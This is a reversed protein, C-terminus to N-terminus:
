FHYAKRGSSTAFYAGNEIDMARAHNAREQVGYAEVPEPELEWAAGEAGLEGSVLTASGLARASKEDLGGRDVNSHEVSSPQIGVPQVDAPIYVIQIGVRPKDQSNPESGHVNFAHHLSFEGPELLADEVRGDIGLARLDVHQGRALMNGAAYTEIHPLQGRVHSGALFRVCGNQRSTETFAVWATIALEPPEVGMYTSDQHWSYFGEHQGRAPEKIAWGSSWVLLGSPKARGLALLATEVAELIAPRRVLAAVGPHLLHTKFRSDGALPMNAATSSSEVDLWLQRAQEESLARLGGVAFGESAFSSPAVGQVPAGCARPLSSAASSSHSSRVGSSASSCAGTPVHEAPLNCARSAKRVHHEGLRFSVACRPFTLALRRAM